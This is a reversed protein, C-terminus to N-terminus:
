DKRRRLAALGGLGGLLLFASAPLPVVPPPPPPVTGKIASFSAVLEASNAMREQTWFATMLEGDHFFGSVDLSYAISDITFVESLGENVTATVRDACGSVNVGTKNAEGNACPNASNLTEWHGFSFVTSIPDALGEITFELALDVGSLFPGYIPNNFHTFTGLVFTEDEQATFDTETPDFAYASQGHGAPKGWSIASTDEGSVGISADQWVGTVSTITLSAAFAPSSLSVVAATISLLSRVSM